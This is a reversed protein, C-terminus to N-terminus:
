KRAIIYGFSLWRGNDLAITKPEGDPDAKCFPDHAAFEQWWLQADPAHDAEVIEFGVSGVAARTEELTVFFKDWSYEGQSIRTDLDEPVPVDFHMPEALGLVANPKLLRHLEKLADLYAAQGGFGRIMELTTTCYIYDFTSDAIYTDPLGVQLGIIISDVQWARAYEMMHEVHPRGDTRDELPDIGVIQVEYEKALFCTQLGRNTGVDLLLKGPQLRMKGALFEALKLGGPGSCGRYVWDLDPYRASKTYSYQEM